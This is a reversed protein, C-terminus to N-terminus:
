RLAMSKADATHSKDPKANRMPAIADEVQALARLIDACAGLLERGAPTLQMRLAVQKFLPLGITQTLKQYAGFGHIAFPL